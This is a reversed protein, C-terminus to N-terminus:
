GRAPAAKFGGWPGRRELVKEVRHWAYMFKGRLQDFPARLGRPALHLLDKGGFSCGVFSNSLIHYTSEEVGGDGGHGKRKVRGWRSPESHRKCRAGRM